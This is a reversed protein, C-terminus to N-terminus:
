QSRSRLRMCPVGCLCLLSAPGGSTCSALQDSRGEVARHRARSTLRVGIVVTLTWVRANARKTGHTSALEATLEVLAWDGGAGENMQQMWGLGGQLALEEHMAMAEGLLPQVSSGRAVVLVLM